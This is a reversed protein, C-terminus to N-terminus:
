ELDERESDNHAMQEDEEIPNESFLLFLSDVFLSLLNDIKIKKLMTLVFDRYMYLITLDSCDHLWFEFDIDFLYFLISKLIKYECSILDSLNIM